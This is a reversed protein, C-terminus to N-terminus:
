KNINIGYESKTTIQPAPDNTKFLNNLHPEIQISKMILSKACASFLELM